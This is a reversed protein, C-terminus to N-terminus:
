RAQSAPLQRNAMIKLSKLMSRAIAEVKQKKLDSRASRLVTLAEPTSNLAVDLGKKYFERGARSGEGRGFHGRWHDIRKGTLPEGDADVLRLSLIERDLWKIADAKSFGGKLLAELALAAYGQATSAVTSGSAKAREAHFTPQPEINFFLAPESGVIRDRLANDLRALLESIGSDFGAFYWSFSDVINECYKLDLTNRAKVKDRHPDSLLKSELERRALEHKATLTLLRQHLWLARIAIEHEDDSM